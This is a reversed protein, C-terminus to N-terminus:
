NKAVEKAMAFCGMVASNDNLKPLKLYNEADPIEMYGNTLRLFQEKVKEILGPKKMVGGGLVICDPALIQMTNIACQAIYYAEFEWVKDEFPIDVAKMNKRAEISPGSALGELCDKHSECIGEFSDEPYKKVYMHGMEPHTFGQLFENGYFAGGGVGTGFTYYVINKHDKGAGFLKEGKASANVDTTWRMPLDFHKKLYGMFNFNRWKIKPTNLIYGYKEANEDLEIPGFCGIGLSVIPYKKLFNVVQSMTEEPGETPISIREIINFEDDGISCVFKTGGAEIAAFYM